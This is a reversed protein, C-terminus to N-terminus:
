FSKCLGFGDILEWDSSGIKEAARKRMLDVAEPTVDDHSKYVEPPFRSADRDDFHSDARRMPASM